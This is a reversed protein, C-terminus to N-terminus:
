FFLNNLTLNMKLYKLFYLTPITSTNAPQYEYTVLGNKSWYALIVPITWNNWQKDEDLIKESSALEVGICYWMENITQLTPDAFIIIYPNMKEQGVQDKLFYAMGEWKNEESLFWPDEPEDSDFLPESCNNKIEEQFEELSSPFILSPTLTPIIIPTLIPTSISIEQKKYFVLFYLAISIIFIILIAIIIKRTTKSM